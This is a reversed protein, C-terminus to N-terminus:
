AIKVIDWPYIPKEHNQSLFRTKILSRQSHAFYNWVFYWDNELDAPQHNVANCLLVSLCLIKISDLLLVCLILALLALTKVNPLLINILFRSNLLFPWVSCFLHFMICIFYCATLKISNISMFHHSKNLFVLTKYRFLEFLILRTFTIIRVFLPQKKCKM